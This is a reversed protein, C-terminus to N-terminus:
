RRTVYCSLAWFYILLRAREHREFSTNSRRRRAEFERGSAVGRFTLTLFLLVSLLLLFLDYKGRKRQLVGFASTRFFVGGWRPKGRKAGKLNKIRSKKTGSKQTDVAGRKRRRGGKHRRRWGGEDSHTCIPHLPRPLPVCTHTHTGCSSFPSLGSFLNM